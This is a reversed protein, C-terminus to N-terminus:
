DAQAVKMAAPKVKPAAPRMPIIIIAQTAPRTTPSQMPPQPIPIANAPVVLTGDACVKGAALIDAKRFYRPLNANAENVADNPTYGDVSLNMYPAADSYVAPTPNTHFTFTAPQFNPDSYRLAYARRQADAVVQPHRGGYYYVDSGCHYQYQVPEYIIAGRSASCLALLLGLSLTRSLM